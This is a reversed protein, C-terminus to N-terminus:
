DWAGSDIGSGGSGFLGGVSSILNSGQQLFNGGLSFGTGNGLGVALGGSASGLYTNATTNGGDGGAWTGGTLGGANLGAVSQGTIPSIAVGILNSAGQFFAGLVNVTNARFSIIIALTALAIFAALFSGARDIADDM